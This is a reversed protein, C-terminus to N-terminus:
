KCVKYGSIWKCTGPKPLNIKICQKKDPTCLLAPKAAAAGAVIQLAALAM